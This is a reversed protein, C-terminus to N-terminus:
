KVCLNLIEYTLKYLESIITDETSGGKFNSNDMKFEIFLLMKDLIEDNIM